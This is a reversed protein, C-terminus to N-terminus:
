DEDNEGDEGNYADVLYVRNGGDEQTLAKMQESVQSYQSQIVILQQELYTNYDEIQDYKMQLEAYAARLEELSMDDIQSSVDSSATDETAETNTAESATETNQASGCAVLTGATLVTVMGILIRNILMKKM